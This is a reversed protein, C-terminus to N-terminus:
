LCFAMYRKGYLLSALTSGYDGIWKCVCCWGVLIAYRKILNDMVLIKGLTASWVFFFCNKSSKEVGSVGGLSSCVLLVEWYRMVLVLMSSAAATWSGGCHGKELLFKSHLLSFLSISDTLELEFVHFTHIFKLNQSHIGWSWMVGLSCLHM